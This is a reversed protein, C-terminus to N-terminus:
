KSLKISTEKLKYRGVKKDKGVAIMTTEIDHGRDRLEHIRASLRLCGFLELAEIQTLTRGSRFYRLIQRTQSM